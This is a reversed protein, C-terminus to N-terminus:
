PGLKATVLQVTKLCIKWGRHEGGRIRTKTPNLVEKYLVAKVM